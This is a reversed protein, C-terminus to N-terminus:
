YVFVGFDAVIYTLFAPPIISSSQSIVVCPCSLVTMEDTIRLFFIPASSLAALLVLLNLVCFHMQDAALSGHFGSCAAIPFEVGGVTLSLSFMMADICL